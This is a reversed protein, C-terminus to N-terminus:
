SKIKQATENLQNLRESILCSVSYMSAIEAEIQSIVLKKVESLIWYKGHTGKIEIKREGFANAPFFDAYLELIPATTGVGIFVSCAIDKSWTKEELLEMFLQGFATSAAQSSPFEALPVQKPGSSTRVSVVDYKPKM